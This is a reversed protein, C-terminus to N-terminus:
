ETQQMKSTTSQLRTSQRSILGESQLPVATIGASGETPRQQSVQPSIMASQMCWLCVHVCVCVCVCVCACACLHM